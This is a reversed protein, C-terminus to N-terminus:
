RVFSHVHQLLLTDIRNQLSVSDVTELFYKMLKKPSVHDAIDRFFNLPKTSEEDEELENLTKGEKDLVEEEVAVDEFKM